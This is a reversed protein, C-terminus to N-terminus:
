EIFEIQETIEDIKKLPKELQKKRTTVLQDYDNQMTQISRGIKDMVEIYKNWQIKFADMLNMVEAAKQEM